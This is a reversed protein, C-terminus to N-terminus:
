NAIWIFIPCGTILVCGNKPYVSLKILMAFCVFIFRAKNPVTFVPPCVDFSLSLFLSPLCTLFLFICSYTGVFFSFSLACPLPFHPDDTGPRSLPPLRRDARFLSPFAYVSLWCTFLGSALCVVHPGRATRRRVLCGPLLCAPLGAPLCALSPKHESTSAEDSRKGHTRTGNTADDAPRRTRSILDRACAPRKFRLRGVIRAPEESRSRRQRKSFGGFIRIRPLGVDIPLARRPEVSRSPRHFSSSLSLLSPFHPLFLPPFPATKNKQQYRMACFVHITPTAIFVDVHAEVTHRFLADLRM